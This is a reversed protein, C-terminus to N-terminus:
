HNLENKDKITLGYFDKVMTDNVGIKSLMGQLNKIYELCNGDNGKATKAMEARKEISINGIYTNANIDNIPTYAFVTRQDPLTIKLKKIKFSRGEREKLYNLVDEEKDDDFEFATGVCKSNENKELGLTPCPKESSGWNKVSKKNFSREYNFLIAKEYKKGNFKKEWDDWMLSGYGFIWM